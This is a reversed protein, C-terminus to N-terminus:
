KQMKPLFNEFFFATVCTVSCFLRKNENYITFDLRLERTEKSLFQWFGVNSHLISVNEIWVGVHEICCGVNITCFGVNIACFKFMEVVFEFM